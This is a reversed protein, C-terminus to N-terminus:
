TLLISSSSVLSGGKARCPLTHYPQTPQPIIYCSVLMTAVVLVLVPVVIQNLVPVIVLVLVLVFVLVLMLDVVVVLVLFGEGQYRVPGLDERKPM